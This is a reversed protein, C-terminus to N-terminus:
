KTFLMWNRREIQEWMCPELDDFGQEPICNKYIVMDRYKNKVEKHLPQPSQNRKLPITYEM